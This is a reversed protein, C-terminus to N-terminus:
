PPPHACIHAVDITRFLQLAATKHLAYDTCSCPTASCWHGMGLGTHGGNMPLQPDTGDPLGINAARAEYQPGGVQRIVSLLQSWWCWKEVPVEGESKGTWAFHHTVWMLLMGQSGPETYPLLFLLCGLKSSRLFFFFFPKHISLM